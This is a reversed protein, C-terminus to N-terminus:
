AVEWPRHEAGHLGPLKWGCALRGSIQRVMCQTCSSLPCSFSFHSSVDVLLVVNCCVLRVVACMYEHIRLPAFVWGLGVLRSCLLTLLEKSHVEKLSHVLEFAREQCGDTVVAARNGGLIWVEM